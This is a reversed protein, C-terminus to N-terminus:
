KAVTITCIVEGTGDAPLMAQIPVAQVGPVMNFSRDRETDRIELPVNAAVVVTGGPKFIEIRDSSPQSVREGSPSIIPVALATSNNRAGTNVAKARIEVQSSDFRYTLEYKSSLPDFTNRDEDQLRTTVHFLIAESDDTYDVEATLDYLNTYWKGDRITELRPTLAIDEPDPNPQQNNSEVVIYRAMSATMIPGTTEHWLMALSGGSAQQAGPRYIWDYSSVTARWPGRAALWVSIEPFYKVGDSIARPLPADDNIVPVHSGHDLLYALPKAHTFTHHVCPKLDHTRYHLGGYLLGDHTCQRLLRTNRYAAAGFAPNVDAMLGFAPQCGDCTRSGWYTWKYQRTGWSNDWGGDPLIFELHNELSRNLLALFEEDKERLAYMVLGNLSEEVNYGLDVGYHGRESKRDTPRGEGFLLKHPDTFFAQVENALVRSRALYEPKDLMEGILNLAYAGTAAYNINTFATDFTKYIYNAAQGLRETWQDRMASELLNGHYYLAEALAIAGFVTIGRWSTPDPIVTWSGDPMSVNKSWEFVSIGADLYKEDGTQQAMRLFPYVADMCRGHIWDCSPCGLAGHLEPNGPENIQVRLMGDCWDKLLESIMQRFADDAPPEAGNQSIEEGYSFPRALFM